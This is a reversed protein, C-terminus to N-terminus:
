PLKARYYQRELVLINPISFDLIGSGTGNTAGPIPVGNCFWQYTVGPWPATVSFTAASGAGVTQSQPETAVVPLTEPTVEQNWALMADGSARAFGDVAVQYV